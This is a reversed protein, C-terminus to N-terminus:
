YASRGGDAPITAGTIMRSEDSALFLAINAIDIPDGTFFPYDDGGLGRAISGPDNAAQAGYRAMIRETRIVGPCIANARINYRSYDKALARTLSLIGGKAAVYVHKSFGQLAGWSSTNVIVGGGQAIMTPIVHRCCHFTGLLDVSHTRHWLAMDVEHVPKDDVASGGAVNFLVDIRGFEALAARAAAQVSAEDRVDTAVLIAEGGARHVRELTAAGSAEDIELVAVRAGERAFLECASGGIGGGAGTILAVKGKLREM